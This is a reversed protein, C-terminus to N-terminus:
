KYIRRLLLPKNKTKEMYEESFYEKKMVFDIDDYLYILILLNKLYHSKYGDSINKNDM